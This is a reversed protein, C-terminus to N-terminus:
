PNNTYKKKMEEFNDWSKKLKEEHNQIDFGTLIRNLSNMQKMTADAINQFMEIKKVM